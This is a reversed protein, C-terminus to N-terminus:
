QIRMNAADTRENSKDDTKKKKNKVIRSIIYDAAVEGSHGVNYFYEDREKLIQETYKSQNEILDAAVEGINDIEDKELSRGIINRATIDYPTIKIKKYARNVVKMQTNIFLTPKGTTFSFEFAISSWDTIILDATYVTVNSSFDTEFIFDDNFRDKYREQIETIKLPFRKIYQPHPRIIVRYGTSTLGEIMNDLCSDIINDYQWSPAILITKKENVTKEAANYASIMNDILGYGVEVIKKRKTGRAEEMARVEEAQLPSVAFITDFYDFAGTRYTLNLSTCAHETYVYEVTKKVKSRKIQYKELDPTTMIVMDAEVKMMLSILRTEDVYYPIIRENDTNLIPDNPDGTVYHIKLKSKRLVADIINEFYKYYGAGESYIMLKMRRANEEDCFQKYYKKALKRNIKSKKHEEANKRKTEELAEYDIYKKPDYVINVLYMVVIAFLNGFIWYLGVGTPVIFAFYTSFAVTFISVGWKAMKGQEIQLVNIKNQIVCMLVTSLGSLIPILLLWNLTTIDPREALNIGLFNMDLSKISDVYGGFKSTIDSGLQSIKEIVMLEPYAAGSFSVTFQSIVEAPMRIIHKLPHYVVNILGLIIPIQLLLPWVGAMPSYKERKYLKQQADYYADKDDTYQYKLAELEPNMNVMKISNKQVLLNLPFMLIKTILTFLILAAGYNGLLRVCWYMVFGLPWGIVNIIFDFVASM